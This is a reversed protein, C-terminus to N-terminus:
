ALLIAKKAFHDVASRLNHRVSASSSNEYRAIEPINKREGYPHGIGYYDIACRMEIASLIDGNTPGIQRGTNDSSIGLRFRKKNEEWSERILNSILSPAMEQPLTVESRWSHLTSQIQDWLDHFNAINRGDRAAAEVSLVRGELELGEKGWAEDVPEFSPPAESVQINLHPLAKSLIRTIEETEGDKMGSIIIREEQEVM